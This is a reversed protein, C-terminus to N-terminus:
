LQPNGSLSHIAASKIEAAFTATINMTMTCSAPKGAYRVPRIIGGVIQGMWRRANQHLNIIATVAFINKIVTPIKAM